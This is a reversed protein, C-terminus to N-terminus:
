AHTVSRGNLSHYHAKQSEWIETVSTIREGTSFSYMYSYDDAFLPTYYNLAYVLAYILVIVSGVMIVRLHREKQKM